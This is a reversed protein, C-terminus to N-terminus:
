VLVGRNVCEQYSSCNVFVPSGSMGSLAGIKELPTELPGGSVRALILVRGMYDVPNRLEVDFKEPEIGRFVSFGVAKTGFKIDSIKLLDPPDAFVSSATLLALFVVGFILRRM